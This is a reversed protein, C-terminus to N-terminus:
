QASALPLSPLLAIRIRAVALDRASVARNAMAQALQLRADALELQTSLGESFRLEAIQYAKEAQEVVGETASWNAEAAELAARSQRSDLEAFEVVQDLQAESQHLAGRAQQYSGLLRGGNFLPLNLAVNASSSALWGLDDNGFPLIQNPYRVWGVNASAGVSPLADARAITVSARSITEAETLQRVSARLTEPSAAGALAVAVVVVEGPDAPPTLTLPADPPLELQQRLTQHALDRGRRANIVAVTQNQVAVNARLLDFEPQRGVAKSLETQRLTTTAQALSSQAIELLQDSLIADYYAQASNLVASARASELGVEASRRGAAAIRNLAWTRGGAFLNQNFSFGFRWTNPQGFPLAGGGADDPTGTTPTYPTTPTGTGTPTGTPPAGFSGFLEDFETAFTRQYTLAANIQPLYGSRAVSRQGGAQDVQAEAIQVSESTEVARRLAAEFTLAQDPIAGPDGGDVALAAGVLLLQVSM